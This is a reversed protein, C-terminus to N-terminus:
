GMMLSAAQGLAIGGDNPPIQAHWYPELGAGRLAEIMREALYKNQFCGGTLLINNVQVIKAVEVSADVLGHHFQAAIVSVPLGSDVDALIQRIMPEWDILIPDTTPDIRLPYSTNVGVGDLAFELMMAAEGEFSSVDCLGVLAAVADFLRGVSSTFPANFGKALMAMLISQEQASFTSWQPVDDGLIEHLLGLASRRPERIARDSGPLRFYRFHAARKFSRDNMLFFEGGWIAGDSGYGTGDWCIGLAPPKLHHEAMCALVHAHHHQVEVVPLSQEKAYQTSMLNPHADCAIMTPLNDYLRAFDDATRRFAEYAPLSELDGIHQSVFVQKGVTLAITNKLHAGVALLPPMPEDVTIPLPAYGRARRLMMPRGGMVRVISDDVHRVVPRNHVLFVDALETLRQLAEHEDICIPEDSLNGSTAVIPFGLKLMLLHHLPTYPLMVGLHPNGPAIAESLLGRHRLLVIPAQPSTLLDAEQASVECFERTTELNPLMLAFPKAGRRKRARLRELADDSRADVMLHFGGLGKVAVIQGDRVAQAAMLLADHHMARVNGDHDWLELHPGCDPCANPQAHFRRDLPNEYEARCADCMEFHKMSTNPRDYPLSEVISFRPGCNTCNTFPYQYRRNNQDLIDSLCDPCTAVDPLILTTKSGGDDSHHIEFGAEYTLPITESDIQQILALPPQEDQLRHLFADITDSGGEAEITVGQSSNRVWGALELERALRYVFPRFGVGQVAGQVSVRIRTLM